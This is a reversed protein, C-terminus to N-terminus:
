QNEAEEAADDADGDAAVAVAGGEGVNGARRKEGGEDGAARSGWPDGTRCRAEDDEEGEAEEQRRDDVAPAELRQGLPQLLECWRGGGLRQAAGEALAR